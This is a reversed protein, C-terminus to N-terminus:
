RAAIREAWSSALADRLTLWKSRLLQEDAQQEAYAIGTVSPDILANRLVQWQRPLRSQEPAATPESAAASFMNDLLPLPPGMGFCLGVGLAVGFTFLRGGRLLMSRAPNAQTLERGFDDTRMLGGARGTLSENVDIM